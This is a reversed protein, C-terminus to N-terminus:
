CADGSDPGIGGTVPDIPYIAGGTALVVWTYGTVPAGVANTLVKGDGITGDDTYRLLNGTGCVTGAVANNILKVQVGVLPVPSPTVSPTVAPTDSITPTPTISPSVTVGPTETISPTITISPTATVVPTETISPTITPTPTL